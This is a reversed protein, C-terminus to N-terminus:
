CNDLADKTGNDSSKIERMLKHSWIESSKHVHPMTDGQWYFMRSRDVILLLVM